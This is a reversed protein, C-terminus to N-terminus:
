QTSTDMGVLYVVVGRDLVIRIQILFGWEGRNLLGQRDDWLLGVRFLQLLLGEGRVVLHAAGRILLYRKVGGVGFDLVIRIQGL